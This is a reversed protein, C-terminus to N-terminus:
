VTVTVPEFPQVAVAPDATGSLEAAGVTVRLLGVSLVPQVLLKVPPTDTVEGVPAPM